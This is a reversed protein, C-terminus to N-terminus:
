KIMAKKAATSAEANVFKIRYDKRPVRTFEVAMKQTLGYLAEWLDRNLVDKKDYTKWGNSQWKEIWEEKFCNVVYASDSYVFIKNVKYSKEIMALSQIVAMIEMRNNTTEKEFGSSRLWVEGLEDYVIYAYGGVGPNGKCSGDTYVHFEM